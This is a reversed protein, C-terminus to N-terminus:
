HQICSVSSVRSGCNRVQDRRVTGAGERRVLELLAEPAQRKRRAVAGQKAANAVMALVAGGAARAALYRSPTLALGVAAALPVMGKVGVRWALGPPAAQLCLVVCLACRMVRSVHPPCSFVWSNTQSVLPSLKCRICQESFHTGYSWAVRSPIVNLFDFSQQFPVGSRRKSM